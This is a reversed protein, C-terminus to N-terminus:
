HFRRQTEFGSHAITNVRLPPTQSTCEMLNMEQECNRGVQLGEIPFFQTLQIVTSRVATQKAIEELTLRGVLIMWERIGLWPRTRSRISIVWVGPWPRCFCSLLLNLTYADFYVLLIFENVGFLKSGVTRDAQLFNPTAGM